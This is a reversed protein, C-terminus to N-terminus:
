QHDAESVCDDPDPSQMYLWAQGQLASTSFLCLHLDHDHDHPFNMSCVCANLHSVFRDPLSVVSVVLVRQSAILTQSDPECMQMEDCSKM